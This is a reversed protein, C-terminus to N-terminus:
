EDEEEITMKKINKMSITTKRPNDIVKTTKMAMDIKRECEKVKFPTLISFEKPIASLISTVMFAIFLYIEIPNGGEGPKTSEWWMYFWFMSSLFLIIATIFRCFSRGGFEMVQMLLLLMLPAYITLISTFLIDASMVTGKWESRGFM